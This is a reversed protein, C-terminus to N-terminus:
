FWTHVQILYENDFNFDESEYSRVQFKLELLNLPFVEYLQFSIYTEFNIVYQQIKELLVHMKQSKAGFIM